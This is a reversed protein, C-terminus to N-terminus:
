RRYVGWVCVLRSAQVVPMSGLLVRPFSIYCEEINMDGMGIRCRVLQNSSELVAQLHHSPLPPLSGSIDLPLSAEKSM